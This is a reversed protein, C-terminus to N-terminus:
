RGATEAEATETPADAPAAEAPDKLFKLLALCAAVGVIGIGVLLM